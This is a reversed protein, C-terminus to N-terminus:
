YENGQVIIKFPPEISEILGLSTARKTLESRKTRIMWESKLTTYDTRLDEVQTTLSSLQRAMKDAQHTNWIYIIGLLVVFLVKPLAKVPVGDEFLGDMPLYTSILTFISWKKQAGGKLKFTNGTSM